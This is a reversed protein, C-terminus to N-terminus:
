GTEVITDDIDSIVALPAENAPALVYGDVAQPGDRNLWALGVTEWSTEAPLPWPPDLGLEFRVYGERDSERTLRVPARGEIRVELTVAVDPVEDSAFQRYLAGMKALMTRKEWVQDRVRLVRADLVLRTASRYGFFPRVRAPHPILPM